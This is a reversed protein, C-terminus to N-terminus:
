ADVLAPAPAAARTLRHSIAALALGFATFPLALAVDLDAANVSPNGALDTMMPGMTVATTVFIAVSLVVSLVIGVGGLFLLRIVPVDRAAAIVVVSLAPWMLSILNFPPDDTIARVLAAVTVAAGIAVLWRGRVTAVAPWVLLVAAAVFGVALVISMVTVANEIAVEDGGPRERLDNPTTLFTPAWALVAITGAAVYRSTDL